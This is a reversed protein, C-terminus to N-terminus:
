PHQFLLLETLHEFTAYMENMTACREVVMYLYREGLRRGTVWVGGRQATAVRLCVECPAKHRLNGLNGLNGLDELNGLNGLDGLDGLPDWQSGFAGVRGAGREGRSSPPQLREWADNLARVVPAELCQALLAASPPFPFLGQNPTFPYAQAGHAGRVGSGGSSGSDTVLSTPTQTLRRCIATAARRSQPTARAEPSHSSSAPAPQLHALIHARFAAPCSLLLSLDARNM